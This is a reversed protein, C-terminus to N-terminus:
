VQFYRRRIEYNLAFSFANVSIKSVGAPISLIIIAFEILVSTFVNILAFIGLSMLMEKQFSFRHKEFVFYRIGIANVTAGCIFAITNSAFPRFGGEVLAIFLSFDIIYGIFSLIFYRSFQNIIM